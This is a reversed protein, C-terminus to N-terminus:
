STNLLLGCSEELALLGGRKRDVLSPDKNLVGSIRRQGQQIRYVYIYVTYM